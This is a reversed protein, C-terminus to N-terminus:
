KVWISTQGTQNVGIGAGYWGRYTYSQAGVGYGNVGIDPSSTVVTPNSAAPSRSGSHISPFFPGYDWNANKPTSNEICGYGSPYSDGWSAGIAEKITYRTWTGTDGKLGTVTVSVNTMSSNYYYSHNNFTLATPDPIPFRYVYSYGDIGGSSPNGGAAMIMTTSSKALLLASKQSNPSLVLGNASARSTPTYSWATGDHNLNPIARNSSSDNASAVYGYALLMYGGNDYSLDCYVQVAQTMNPTKIWYVGSTTLGVTNRLYLASPAARNETSGDLTGLSLWTTGNYYEPANVESNYRFNGTNASGPRQATTGSPLDFYGTSTNAKDSVETPSVGTVTTASLTTPTAATYKYVVGSGTTSGENSAGIIVHSGSAAISTGYQDAHTAGYKNPDNLTSLLAGTNINYVYVKGVYSDSTADTEGRAGIVLIDGSIGFAEGFQDNSPTAYANPNALSHLLTGTALDYVFAYGSATYAGSQERSGVVLKTSSITMARGFNDATATIVPNPNNLTYLLTVGSGTVSFVYVKGSSTNNADAEGIAAVALYSGTAVIAFGFSDGARTGYANPDDITYVLSGTSTNFVYVKGSGSNSVNTDYEEYPASVYTYTGDGSLAVSTGFRDSAGTGVPTPNDLTRLLSGTSANFIYAKGSYNGTADHEQDAGVVATTGNIALSSGFYDSASTSYGTPNSLTQVLTNTALNYVYVKGSQTGGADDELRASILALDGSVALPTGFYDNDATGYANPNDISYNFTFTPTGKSYFESVTTANVPTYGLKDTIATTHLKSATVTSDALKAGTITSDSIDAVTIAGSAIKDSTVANDGIGDSTIKTFAM